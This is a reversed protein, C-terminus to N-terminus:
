RVTEEEDDDPPLDGPDVPAPRRPPDFPFVPTM